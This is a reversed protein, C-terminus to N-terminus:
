LINNLDAKRLNSIRCWHDTGVLIVDDIHAVDRTMNAYKQVDKVAREACDNVVKLDRVLDRHELYAGCLIWTAADTLLWTKDLKFLKFLLWSRPTIFAALSPCRETLLAIVPQFNPKGPTFFRPAPLDVLARAAENKEENPVGDDFLSLVVLESTLYWLHRCVSDLGRRSAAPEVTAYEKLTYYFDLDHRPASTSLHSRLFYPIYMLAIIPSMADVTSRKRPTMDFVTSLMQMKLLYISSAM